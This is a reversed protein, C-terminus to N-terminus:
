YCGNLYKSQLLEEPIEVPKDPELVYMVRGMAPVCIIRGDPMICSGACKAPCSEEFEGIKRVTQRQVDYEYIANGGGPISLIKGNVGLASGFSGYKQDTCIMESTKKVPDIKLIGKAYASFGYINEDCGICAGFVMSSIISGIFYIRDTKPDLVMVREMYEPFMYILGNPHLISGCYRFRMKQRCIPIEEAKQTNLDIKLITNTSRPPQYVIGQKTCVGGYHHERDYDLNLPIEQPEQANKIDYVLLNNSSRPFGYVKGKWLCGGSWKFAGKSINGARSWENSQLDMVLCDTGGSTIGIMKHGAYVGGVWKYGDEFGPIKNVKNYMVKKNNKMFELLYLWEADVEAEDQPPKEKYSYLLFWIGHQIGKMWRKLCVLM